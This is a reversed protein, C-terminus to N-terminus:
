SPAVSNIFIEETPVATLSPPLTFTTNVDLLLENIAFTSAGVPYEEWVGIILLILTLSEATESDPVFLIVTVGVPSGPAM